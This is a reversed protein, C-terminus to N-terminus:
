KSIMPLFWGWFEDAGLDCAILMGHLPNPRVQGDIDVNLGGYGPGKDRAASLFTIHFDANSTNTSNAFRPDGSFSNTASFSHYNNTNNHMLNYEITISGDIFSDDHFGYSQNAVIGHTFFGNVYGAINFGQSSASTSSSAVTTHYFDVDAYDYSYGQINLNYILHNAIINNTAVVEGMSAGSNIWLGYVAEPNNIVNGSLNTASGSLYIVSSSHNDLFQNNHVTAKSAQMLLASGRNTPLGLSNNNSILNNQVIAGDVNALLLGSAWGTHGIASNNDYIANHDIIVASSDCHHLFIAGGLGPGDNSNALNGYIVNDSINLLDTQYAFIAGGAGHTAPDESAHNNTFTNSKLTVSDANHIYIGGGCFATPSAGLATYDTNVSNTADGNIFKFGSITWSYGASGLITIGRNNGEGDLITEYLGPDIVTEEGLTPDGDWGGILTVSKNQLRIVEHMFTPDVYGMSNVNYTGQKFVLWDGMMAFTFANNFHCPNDKPCTAFPGDGNPEVYRYYGGSPSRLSDAQAPKIMEPLQLLTSFISAILFSVITKKM